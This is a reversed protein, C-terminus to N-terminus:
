RAGWGFTVGAMARFENQIVWDGDAYDMLWRYDGAFRLGVRESVYVTVGGGPQLAVDTESQDYAMLGGVPMAFDFRSRTHSAGLLVQAFPVLGGYQHFFRPGGMFTYQRIRDTFRIDGGGRTLTKYSGAAEGVIGFWRTLNAGGSFFWGGPYSENADTDRMLVYGGSIEALPIPPVTVEQALTTSPWALATALVVAALPRATFMVHEKLHLAAPGCSSALARRARPQKQLSLARRKV